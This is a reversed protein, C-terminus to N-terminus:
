NNKHQEEDVCYTSECGPCIWYDEYWPWDAPCLDLEEGCKECKNM